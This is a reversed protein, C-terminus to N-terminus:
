KKKVVFMCHDKEYPDLRKYDVVPMRSELEKLSERFLSIPDRSVDESRAKQALLGFGGQKLFMDCNALFIKVQGRQAVDMYVCDVMGVTHTLEGPNRADGFIAAVNTRTESLYVLERLVRPAFDVAFVFGDRGVIDSVHSVTTGTSAGLYLVTNGKRIGIQNLGKHIAACLKSRTPDWHRYENGAQTLVDEGYARQGPYANLTFLANKGRYKESFVNDFFLPKM